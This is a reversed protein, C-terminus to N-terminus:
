GHDREEEKVTIRYKHNYEKTEMPERREGPREGGPHEKDQGM